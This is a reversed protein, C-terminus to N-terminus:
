LAVAINATEMNWFDDQSLNRPSLNQSLTPVRPPAARGTM